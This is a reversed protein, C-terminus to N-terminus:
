SFMKIPCLVLLVTPLAIYSPNTLFRIEMKSPTSFSFAIISNKKKSIDKKM